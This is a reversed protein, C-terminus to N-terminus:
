VLYSSLRDYSMSFFYLFLGPLAVIVLRLGEWVGLLFLCFLVLALRVFPRLASLNASKEGLSTIAISYPSYLVFVFYRLAFSLVFPRTSYVM